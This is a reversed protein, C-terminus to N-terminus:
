NIVGSVGNRGNEKTKYLYEDADIMVKEINTNNDPIFCLYGLSITLFKSVESAKHEIKLDEIKGVIYRALNDVKNSDEGSILIGFEEGGLRFVFDNPRKLNEKFCQAVAKLVDDGM